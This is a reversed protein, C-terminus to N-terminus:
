QYKLAIELLYLCLEKPKSLMSMHDAGAISMVEKTPSKEIMWRQFEEKLSQDEECVIFARNVSGYKKETLLSEKILDEFFLGSPRTFMKALEIEEPQCNNYLINTLSDPGIIVSSPPNELDGDYSFENDMFSDPSTRRFFEQLHTALPDRDNPMYATIFVAISIKKSFSEMALSICFGGYSHRVLVVREGHPLSAMFDMLAQLYDFITALQDLRRPDLGSAGLDLATVRHGSSKLLTVLKYWCWASHCSGHVLVFHKGSEM